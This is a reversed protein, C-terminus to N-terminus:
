PLDGVTFKVLAVGNAPVNSNDPIFNRFAAYGTADITRTQSIKFGNGYDIFLTATRGANLPNWWVNMFSGFANEGNNPLSGKLQIPVPSYVRLPSLKVYFRGVFQIQQVTLVRDTNLSSTPYGITYSKGTDGTPVPLAVNTSLLGNSQVTAGSDETGNVSISPSGTVSGLFGTGSPIVVLYDTTEVTTGPPVSGSPIVTTGSVGPVTTTAGGSAPVTTDAAPHGSVAEAGSFNVTGTPLHVTGDGGCGVVAVVAALAAYRSFSNKMESGFARRAM